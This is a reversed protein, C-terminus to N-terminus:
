LFDMFIWRSRVRGPSQLDQSTHQVLADIRLPQASDLEHLNGKLWARSGEVAIERIPIAESGADAIAQGALYIQIPALVCRRRWVGRRRIRESM